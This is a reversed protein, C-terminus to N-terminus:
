LTFNGARAKQADLGWHLGLWGGGGAEFKDAGRAHVDQQKIVIRDIQM